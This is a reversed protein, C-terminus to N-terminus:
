RKGREEAGGRVNKKQKIVCSILSRAMVRSAGMKLRGRRRRRSVISGVTMVM